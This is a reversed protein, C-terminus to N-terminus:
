GLNSRAILPRVEIDNVINTVALFPFLNLHYGLRPSRPYRDYPAFLESIIPMDLGDVRVLEYYPNRVVHM